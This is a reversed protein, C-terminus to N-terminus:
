LGEQKTGTIIRVVGGFLEHCYVGRLGAETLLAVLQAPGAVYQQSKHLFQYRNNRRKGRAVWNAVGDLVRMTGKMHLTYLSRMWWATPLGIDMQLVRGGPRAVRVMEALVRAPEAVNRLAFAMTVVDFAGDDFPLEMANGAAFRVRAPGRYAALKAKAQALMGESLDIGVVEGGDGVARAIRYTLCGTGCAVDLVRQGPLLRAHAMAAKHWRPFLGFSILTSTLDYRGAATDFLTKVFQEKGERAIQQDFRDAGM